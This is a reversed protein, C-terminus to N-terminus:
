FEGVTYRSGGASQVRMEVRAAVENAPMPSVWIPGYEGGFRPEKWSTADDLQWWDPAATILYPGAPKSPAVHRVVSGDQDLRSCLLSRLFVCHSLLGHSFTPSLQSALLLMVWSM